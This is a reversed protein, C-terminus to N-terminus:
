INNKYKNIQQRTLTPRIKLLKDFDINLYEQFKALISIPTEQCKQNINSLVKELDKYQLDLLEGVRKIYGESNFNLYSPYNLYERIRQIIHYIERRDEGNCIENLLVFYNNKRAITFIVCKLVKKPDLHTTIKARDRRFDSYLKEIEYLLDFPLNLRELEQKAFEALDINM